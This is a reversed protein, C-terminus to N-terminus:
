YNINSQFKSFIRARRIPSIPLNIQKLCKNRDFATVFRVKKRCFGIKRWEHLLHASNGDLALVMFLVTGVQGCFIKLIFSGSLSIKNNYYSFFGKEALRIVLLTFRYKYTFLIKKEVTEISYSGVSEGFQNQEWFLIHLKKERTNISVPRM